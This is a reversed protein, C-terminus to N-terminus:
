RTDARKASKRRSAARTKTATTRSAATRARRRRPAKRAPKDDFLGFTPIHSAIAGPAAAMTKKLGALAGTNNMVQGLLVGMQFAAAASLRSHSAITDSIRGILDDSHSSQTTRATRAM